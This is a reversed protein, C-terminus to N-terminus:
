EVPRFVPKDVGSFSSLRYSRPAVAPDDDVLTVVDGVDMSRILPNHIQSVSGDMTHLYALECTSEDSFSAVELMHARFMHKTREDMLHWIEVKVDSEKSQNHLAALALKAPNCFRGNRVLGEVPIRLAGGVVAIPLTDERSAKVRWGVVKNFTCYLTPM